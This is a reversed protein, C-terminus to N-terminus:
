ILGAANLHLQLSRQRFNCKLQCQRLVAAIMARTTELEGGDCSSKGNNVNVTGILRRAFSTRRSAVKRQKLVTLTQQALESTRQLVDTYDSAALRRWIARPLHVAAEASSPFVHKNNPASM